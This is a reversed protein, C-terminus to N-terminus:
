RAFRQISNAIGTLIGVTQHVFYAGIPASIVPIAALAIRLRDSYFRMLLLAFLPSLPRSYGFAEKVHSPEAVALGLMVFLLAAIEIAGSKQRFWVVIGLILATIFALMALIELVNMAWMVAPAGGQYPFQFLRLFLGYVPRGVIGVAATKTATVQLYLAWLLAPVATSAAIAARRFERHLVASAFVAAALLLGTEKVLPALVLVIWLVRDRRASAAYAFAMALATVSADVLMRDISALVGPIIVFAAGWLPTRGFHQAAASAFYVGLAVSALVVAMFTWDVLPEYGGALLWAAFPVLMRGQRLRVDDVYPAYRELLPDHAIYRYFQGDYGYSNPFV